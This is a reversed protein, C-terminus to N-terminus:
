RSRFYFSYGLALADTLLCVGGLLGCGPAIEEELVHRCSGELFPQFVVVCIFFLRGFLGKEDMLGIAVGISVLFVLM